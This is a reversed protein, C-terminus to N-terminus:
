SDFPVTMKRGRWLSAKRANRQAKAKSKVGTAARASRASLGAPIAWPNRSDVKAVPNGNVEPAESGVPIVKGLPPPTRVAAVGAPVRAKKGVSV